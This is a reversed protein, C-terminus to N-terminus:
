KLKLLEGGDAIVLKIISKYRYITYLLLILRHISADQTVERIKDRKRGETQHNSSDDV